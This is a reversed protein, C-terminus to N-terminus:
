YAGGVPTYGDADPVKGEAVTAGSYPFPRVDFADGPQAKTRVYEDFDDADVFALPTPASAGCFHWHLVAIAGVTELHEQIARVNGADLIKKGDTRWEWPGDMKTEAM